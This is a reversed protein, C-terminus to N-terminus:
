ECLRISQFLRAEQFIATQAGTINGLFGNGANPTISAIDAILPPNAGADVYIDTILGALGTTIEIDFEYCCSSTPIPTITCNGQANAQYSLLTAISIIFYIITNKM